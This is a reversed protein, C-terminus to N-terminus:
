PLEDFLNRVRTLQGRTPPPPSDDDDGSGARRPASTVPAAPPYHVATDCGDSVVRGNELRERMGCVPCQRLGIEKPAGPSIRELYALVDPDTIPVTTYVPWDSRDSM